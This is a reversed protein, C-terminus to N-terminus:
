KFWKVQTTIFKKDLPINGLSILAIDVEYKRGVEYYGEFFLSDGSHFVKVGDVELIYTNATKPIPDYSPLAIVKIDKVKTEEYEKLTVIREENIGWSKLLESVSPSGIFLCKTNKSVSFVFDENLHDLDEHTIITADIKKCSTSRFISFSM